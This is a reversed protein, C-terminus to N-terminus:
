ILHENFKIEKLPFTHEPNTHSAARHQFICNWATCYKEPERTDLEGNLVPICSFNM